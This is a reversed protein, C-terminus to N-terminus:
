SGVTVEQPQMKKTMNWTSVTNYSIVLTGLFLHILLPHMSDWLYAVFFSKTQIIPFLVLAM